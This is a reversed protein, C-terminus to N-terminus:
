RPFMRTFSLSVFLHRDVAHFAGVLFWAQSRLQDRGAKRVEGLDLVITYRLDAACAEHVLSVPCERASTMASDSEQLPRSM